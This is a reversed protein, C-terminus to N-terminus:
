SKDLKPKINHFDIIRMLSEPETFLAKFGLSFTLDDWTNVETFFIKSGWGYANYHGEEYLIIDIHDGNNSLYFEAETSSSHSNLPIYHPIIITLSIIVILGVTIYLAKLLKKLYKM